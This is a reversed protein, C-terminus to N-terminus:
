GSALAKRMAPDLQLGVAYDDADVGTAVGSEMENGEETKGFGALRDEQEAIAAAMRKKNSKKSAQMAEWTRYNTLQVVPFRSM